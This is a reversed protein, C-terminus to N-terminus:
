SHTPQDLEREGLPPDAACVASMRKATVGATVRRITHPKKPRCFRFPEWTITGASNLTRPLGVSQKAWCDTLRQRPRALPLEGTHFCMSAASPNPATRQIPCDTPRYSSGMNRLFYQRSHQILHNPEFSASRRPGLLVLEGYKVTFPDHEPLARSEGGVSLLNM